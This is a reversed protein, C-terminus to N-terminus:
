RTALKSLAQKLSLGGTVLQAASQYGNAHHGNTSWGNPSGGHTKMLNEAAAGASNAMVSLTSQPPDVLLFVLGFGLMLGGMLGGLVIMAKSPGVPANGPVPADIVTILSATRAAAQSARAEALQQEATKLIDARQNREAVLNAYQARMN